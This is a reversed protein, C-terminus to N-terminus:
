YSFDIMDMKSMILKIIELIPKQLGDKNCIIKGTAATSLATNSGGNFKKSFNENLKILLMDDEDDMFNVDMTEILRIIISLRGESLGFSEKVEKYLEQYSSGIRPQLKIHKIGFMLGNSVSGIVVEMLLKIFNKDFRVVEGEITFGIENDIPTSSITYLMDNPVVGEHLIECRIKKYIEKEIGRHGGFVESFLPGDFRYSCDDHSFIQMLRVGLFREFREGVSMKNTIIKQCKACEQNRIIKPKDISVCGKFVKSASADIAICLLALSTLYRENEFNFKADAVLNLISGNVIM